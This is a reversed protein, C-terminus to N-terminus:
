TGRGECAAARIREWGANRFDPQLGKGKFSADRLRFATKKRRESLVARLGTEILERLTTNERAALERAERALSDAIEVTTKTHTGM